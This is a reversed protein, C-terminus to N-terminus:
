WHISLTGRHFSQVLTVYECTCPEGTGLGRENLLKFQIEAVANGHSMCKPCSEFSLLILVKKPVSHRHRKHGLKNRTAKFKALFLAQTTGSVNHEGRHHTPTNKVKM